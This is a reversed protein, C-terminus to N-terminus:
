ELDFRLNAWEDVRSSSHRPLETNFLAMGCGIDSGILHPYLVTDTVFAAGVPTRRGAHLDPFAVTYRMGELGAAAYVQRIAETAIGAMPSAILRVTQAARQSRQSIKM